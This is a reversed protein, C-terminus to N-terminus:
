LKNLCDKFIKNKKTDKTAEYFLEMCSKFKHKDISGFIQGVTKYELCKYVLKTIKILFKSTIPHNIYLKAEDIDYLGYYNSMNSSGLRKLQPFIYWMWHTEKKCKKIEQFADEGSSYDIRETFRRIFMTFDGYKRENM